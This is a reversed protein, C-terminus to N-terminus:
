FAQPLLVLLAHLHPSYRVASLMTKHQQQSYVQETNDAGGVAQMHFEGEGASWLLCNALRFVSACCACLVSSRHLGRRGQSFAQQTRIDGDHIQVLQQLRLSISAASKRWCSSPKLKVRSVPSPSLPGAKWALLTFCKLAIKKEVHLCVIGKGSKERVCADVCACVWGWACRRRRREVWWLQRKTPLCDKNSATVGMAM